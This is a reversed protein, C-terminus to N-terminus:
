RQVAEFRRILENVIKEHVDNVDETTLTKERDEYIINLSVSKFGKDIHEGQYVDFVECNKVIKGGTKRIQKLLDSAPIDEKLM